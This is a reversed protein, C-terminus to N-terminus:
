KSVKAHPKANPKIKYFLPLSFLCSISMDMPRNQNSALGTHSFCLTEWLSGSHHGPAKKKRSFTEGSEGDEKRGGRICKEKRSGTLVGLVTLNVQGPYKPTNSGPLGRHAKCATGAGERRSTDRGTVKTAM